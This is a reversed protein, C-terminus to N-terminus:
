LELTIYQRKQQKFVAEFSHCASSSYFHFLVFAGEKGIYLGNHDIFRNQRIFM